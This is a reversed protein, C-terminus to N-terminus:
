LLASKVLLRMENENSALCHSLSACSLPLGLPPFSVMQGAAPSRGRVSSPALSVCRFSCFALSDLELAAPAPSARYNAWNQQKQFTVVISSFKSSVMLWSCVPQRLRTFAERPDFWLYSGNKEQVLIAVLTAYRTPRAGFCADNKLIEGFYVSLLLLGAHLILLVLLFQKM